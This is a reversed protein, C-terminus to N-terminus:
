DENLNKSSLDERIAAGEPSRKSNRYMNTAPGGRKNL